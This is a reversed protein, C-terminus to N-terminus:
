RLSAAREVPRMPPYVHSVFWWWLLTPREARFSVERVGSGPARLDIMLWRGFRIAAHDKMLAALAPRESPAPNGDTLVVMRRNSAALAPVADLRNIDVITRDLVYLFEVRHPINAHLAIVDGPSTRLAVERAFLQRPYDADYPQFGISGMVARSEILDAISQPLVLAACLSV